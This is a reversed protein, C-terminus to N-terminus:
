PQKNDIRTVIDRWDLLQTFGELCPRIHVRVEYNKLMPMMLGVDFRSKHNDPAAATTM